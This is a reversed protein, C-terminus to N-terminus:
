RNGATVLDDRTLLAAGVHQPAQLPQGQAGAVAVQMALFGIRYGDTAILSDLEGNALNDMLFLELPDCGVVVIAHRPDIDKLALMAGQTADASVAFIARLRPFAKVIERTSQEAELTQLAGPSQAVVEIGPFAAIAQRFSRARAVTEPTGRDLGVIAVEGGKPTVDAIRQAALRGFQSQDPTVSTLYRGTPVPAETQVIVVPFKRAVLDDIMTTVGWVNTPGLILAKAGRHVAAEAILLQRDLDDERTPANWYIQYGANRAAAQAGRHMDETFTTGSTRPIFAIVPPSPATRVAPLLAILCGCFGGAVIAAFPRVMRTKFQHEGLSAGVRTQLICDASTEAPFV